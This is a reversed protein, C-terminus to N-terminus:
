LFRALRAGLWVAVFGVLLNLGANLLAQFYSGVEALAFTEYEFTSFTTYSGIFGIAILLRLNPNSVIYRETILTVFLGLFFSGMINVVFTAYPFTTGRMGNLYGGLWYRANAGLYGGIGIYLSKTLITLWPNNMGTRWIICKKMVPTMLMSATKWVSSSRVGDSVIKM